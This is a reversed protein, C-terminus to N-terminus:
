QVRGTASVSVRELERAQIEISDRTAGASLAAQDTARELRAVQDSLVARLTEANEAAKDSAQSLEEAQRRLRDAIDKVKDDADDSPYVLRHLEHQLAGSVRNLDAHRGAFAIALWLFALPAFVGAIFAGLEYPLFSLTSSWGVEVQVYYACLGLWIASIGSAILAPWRRGPTPFETM